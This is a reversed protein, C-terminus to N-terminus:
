DHNAQSTKTNKGLKTTIFVYVAYAVFRTIVDPFVLELRSLHAFLFLLQEIHINRRQIKAFPVSIGM